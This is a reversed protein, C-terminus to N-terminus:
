DALLLRQDIRFLRGDGLMHASVGERFLPAFARDRLNLGGAYAGMAPLVCRRASLAFCRRRLARGRMRVKAAPHLHGAIEYAAEATDPEHRLTVDAIRITEAREGGLGAGIERDHNGTIWLWDRGRQLAKLGALTCPTMRGEARSDHFSDGLAIVRAPQHRLIATTLAALTATSDYPPLFVGRAAYASGKELHLDAVVLTREEPLWLAGSLDPVLALRGLMFASARESSDTRIEAAANV